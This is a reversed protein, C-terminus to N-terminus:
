NLLSSNNFKTVTSSHAALRIQQMRSPGSPSAPPGLPGSRTPGEPEAREQLITKKEFKNKLAFVIGTFV